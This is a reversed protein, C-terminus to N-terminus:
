VVILRGGICIQYSEYHDSSDYACLRSGDTFEVTLVGPEFVDAAAIDLGLKDALIQAADRPRSYTIAVEGTSTVSFEGEISISADNSLRLQVQHEGLAVQELTCGRLGSIDTGVDLGHM